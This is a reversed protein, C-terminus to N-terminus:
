QGHVQAPADGGGSSPAAQGVGDAPLHSRALPQVAGESHRIAMMLPADIREQVDGGTVLPLYQASKANANARALPVTLTYAQMGTQKAARITGKAESVAQSVAQSVQEESPKAKGTLLDAVVYENGPKVVQYHEAPMKSSI